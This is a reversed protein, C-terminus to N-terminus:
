FLPVGFDRALPELEAALVLPHPEDVQQVWRLAERASAFFAHQETTSSMTTVNMVATRRMAAAVGSQLLVIGTRRHKSGWKRLRETLAERREGAVGHVWDPGFVVLQSIQGFEAM